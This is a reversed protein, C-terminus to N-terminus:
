KMKYISVYISLNSLNVGNTARQYCLTFSQCLTKKSSSTFLYCPNKVPHVECVSVAGSAAAAVPAGNTAQGAAAAGGGRRRRRKVEWERKWQRLLFRGGGRCQQRRRRQRRCGGWVDREKREKRQRSFYVGSRKRNKKEKQTNKKLPAESVRGIESRGLASTPCQICVASLCGHTASTGWGM